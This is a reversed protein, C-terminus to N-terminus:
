DLRRRTDPSVHVMHPCAGEWEGDVEEVEEVVDVEVEEVEKPSLQVMHPQVERGSGDQVVTVQVWGERDGKM